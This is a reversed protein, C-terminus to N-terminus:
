CLFCKEYGDEVYKKKGEPYSECWLEFHKQIAAIYSKIEDIQAQTLSALIYPRPM